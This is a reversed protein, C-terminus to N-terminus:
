DQLRRSAVKEATTRSPRSGFRATVYNAVAAIETDSYAAAFSPMVPQGSQSSASGSLIMQAVNTASADNVARVETADTALKHVDAFTDAVAYIDIMPM